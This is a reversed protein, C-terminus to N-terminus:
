EVDLHTAVQELRPSRYVPVMGNRAAIGVVAAYVFMENGLRGGSMRMRGIVHRRPQGAVTVDDELMRRMSDSAVLSTTAAAAPHTERGYRVVAFLLLGTSIMTVLFLRKRMRNAACACTVHRAVCAPISSVM